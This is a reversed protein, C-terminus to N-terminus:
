WPSAELQSFTKQLRKFLIDPFDVTEWEQAYADAYANMRNLCGFYVCNLPVTSYHWEGKITALISLCGSSLAPAVYPKYGMERVALNATLTKHTLWDSVEPHYHILSDAVVLGSGHPGYVRGERSFRDASPNQAAYFHARANMVGLGFGKVQEPFLGRGDFVGAESVNSEHYVVRCLQDVPDSVVAFLGTFAATRALRAYDRLISSNADFQAMRVDINKSDLGPVQRAICFIFVDCDFLNEPQLLSVAPFSDYHISAIQNAEHIWREMKQSSLDFIGIDDIAPSGLLRLGTLLTGGVDGLGALHIRKGKFPGMSLRNKWRHHATNVLFVQRQEIRKVLWGPVQHDAGDEPDDRCLLKLSEQEVFLHSPEHVLSCVQSTEVPRQQLIFVPQRNHQVSYLDIAPLDPFPRDSIASGQELQYYFPM